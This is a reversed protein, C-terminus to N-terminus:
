ADHLAAILMRRPDVEGGRTSATEPVSFVSSRCVLVGHFHRSAPHYELITFANRSRPTRLLHLAFPSTCCPIIGMADVANNLHLAARSAPPVCEHWVHRHLAHICCCALSTLHEMRVLPPPQVGAITYSCDTSFEPPRLTHPLLPQDYLSPLAGIRPARAATSSYPVFANRDACTPSALRPLYSM